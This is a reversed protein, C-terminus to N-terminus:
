GFFIAAVVAFWLVAWQWPRLPVYVDDLCFTGETHYAAWAFFTAVAVRRHTLSEPVPDIWRTWALPVGHLAVNGVHFLAMSVGLKRALRAYATRDLLPAVFFSAAVGRFLCGAVALVDADSALTGYLFIGLPIYTFHDAVGGGERM